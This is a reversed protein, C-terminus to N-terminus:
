LVALEMLVLLGRHGVGGEAAGGGCRWKGSFGDAEDEIADFL